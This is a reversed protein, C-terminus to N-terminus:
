AHMSQFKMGALGPHGTKKSTDTKKL